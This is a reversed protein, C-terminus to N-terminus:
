CNKWEPKRKENFSNIGENADHTEMLESLYIKELLDINKLFNQNFEFRSARVAFRLAVTSKPLINKTLFDDLESEPNESVFSVLGIEKATNASVSRGSL